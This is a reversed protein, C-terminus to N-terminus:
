QFSFLKYITLFTMNGFNLTMNVVKKLAKIEINISEIFLINNKLLTQFQLTALPVSFINPTLSPAIDSRIHRIPLNHSTRHYRLQDQLGKLTHKKELVSVDPYPVYSTSMNFHLM